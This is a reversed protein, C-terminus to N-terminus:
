KGRQEGKKKAVNNRLYVPLAQDAPLLRGAEVEVQALKIINGAQPFRNAELQSLQGSYNESLIAEYEAWGTGIGLWSQESIPKFTEPPCVQEEDLLTVLGDVVQYNAGYIEGMRADMAVAIHENDFEDVVGQAVAALTSVPIVPIDRAFAIGQAVGVGVRVGTFSGPGRGFAVADVDAITSEAQKFLEDMMALILDSHGRQTMEIREFIQGQYLLAASCSETCTDLALINM